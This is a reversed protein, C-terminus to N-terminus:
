RGGSFSNRDDIDRAQIIEALDTFKDAQNKICTALDLLDTLMQKSIDSGTKISNLNSEGLSINPEKFNSTDVQWFQSVADQAANIDSKM